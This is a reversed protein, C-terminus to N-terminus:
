HIIYLTYYLVCMCVYIHDGRGVVRVGRLFVTFVSVFAKKGFGIKSSNKCIPFVLTFCLFDLFGFTWFDLFRLIWFDLFGFFCFDM